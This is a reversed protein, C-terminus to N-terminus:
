FLFPATLERKFKLVSHEEYLVGRVRRLTGVKRRGDFLGSGVIRSLMRGNIPDCCLRTAKGYRQTM